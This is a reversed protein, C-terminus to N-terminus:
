TLFDNVGEIGSFYPCSENIKKILIKADDLSVPVIGKKKNKTLETIKDSVVGADTFLLEAMVPIYQSNIIYDTEDDVFNDVAVSVAMIKNNLIHVLVDNKKVYQSSDLYEKNKGDSDLKPIITCNSNREDEFTSNCVVLFCNRGDYRKYPLPKKISESKTNNMYSKLEVKGKIVSSNQPKEKRKSNYASSWRPISKRAELVRRNLGKKMMLKKEANKNNLSMKVFQNFDEDDTTLVNEFCDPYILTMDKEPFSVTIFGDKIEKVTAQGFMKHHVIKEKMM